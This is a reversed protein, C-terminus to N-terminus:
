IKCKKNKNHPKELKRGKIQGLCSLSVTIYRNNEFNLKDWVGPNSSGQFSDVVLIRELITGSSFGKELKREGKQKLIAGPLLLVEIRVGGVLRKRGLM